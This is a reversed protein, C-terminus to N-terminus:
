QIVLDEIIVDEAAGPTLAIDARKLMEAKIRAMAESGDFDEPSLERLFFAIREQILPQKQKIEALAAADKAVVKATLKLYSIRGAADPALDTLFQQAPGYFPGTAAGSFEPLDYHPLSMKNSNLITTSLGLMFTVALSFLVIHKGPTRVRRRPAEAASVIGVNSVAFDSL